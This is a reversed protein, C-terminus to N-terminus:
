FLATPRMLPGDNSEESSSPSNVLAPKKQVSVKAITPIEDADEDENVESAVAVPEEEHPMENYAGTDVIASEDDTTSSHSLSAPAPPPTPPTAMQSALFSRLDTFTPRAKRDISWCKLMM